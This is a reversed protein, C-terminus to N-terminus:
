RWEAVFEPVSRGLRERLWEVSEGIARAQAAFRSRMELENDRWLLKLFTSPGVVRLRGVSEPFDKLNFTVLYDARGQLAAALVHRDKVDNTLAPILGEHGTVVADPFFERMAAERRAALAAGKAFRVELTRRVEDLIQDSWRAQFLAEPEALRLLTDALPMPVLVCADLLAVPERKM